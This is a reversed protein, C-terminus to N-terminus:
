SKFIHSCNRLRTINESADKELDEIVEEEYYKQIWCLSKRTQYSM